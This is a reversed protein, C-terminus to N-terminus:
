SDENADMALKLEDVILPWVGARVAAAKIDEANQRQAKEKSKLNEVQATLSEIRRHRSSSKDRVKRLIKSQTFLENELERIRDTHNTCTKIEVPPKFM